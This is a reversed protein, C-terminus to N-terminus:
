SPAEERHQSIARLRDALARSARVEKIAEQQEASPIPEGDWYSDFGVHDGPIFVQGDNRPLADGLQWYEYADLAEILRPLDKRSLTVHVAETTEGIPEIRSGNIRWDGVIEGLHHELVDLIVYGVEEEAPAEFYEGLYNGYRNIFYTCADAPVDATIEMDLILRVQTVSQDADTSWATPDSEGATPEQQWQEPLFGGKTIWEDVARFRAFVEQVTEADWEQESIMRRIEALTTTPDM